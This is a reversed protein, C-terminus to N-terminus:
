HMINLLKHLGSNEERQLTYFICVALFLLFNARIKATELALHYYFFLGKRYKLHSIKLATFQQFNLLRLKNFRSYLFFSKNFIHCQVYNISSKLHLDCDLPPALPPNSKIYLTKIFIYLWMIFRCPYIFIIFFAM